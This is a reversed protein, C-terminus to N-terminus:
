NRSSSLDLWIPNTFALPTVPRPEEGIAPPIVPSLSEDGEVVVMAFGSARIRFEVSEDFRLSRDRGEVMLVSQEVGNFYLMVRRVDVWSPAVVRIHATLSGSSVALTDGIGADGITFEIFPGNSVVVGGKRLSQLFETEGAGHMRVYNRPSGVESGTLQHSDSNGVGVVRRGSRLLGMWDKWAKPFSQLNKGNVIEMLDFDLRTGEAMSDPNVYEHLDLYGMM